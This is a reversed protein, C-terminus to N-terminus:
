ISLSGMAEFAHIEDGRIGRAVADESYQKLQPDIEPNFSLFVQNDKTEATINMKRRDMRALACGGEEDTENAPDPLKTTTTWFRGM